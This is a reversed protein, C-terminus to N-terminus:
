FGVRIFGCENVMYILVAGSSNLVAKFKTKLYSKQNNPLNVAKAASSHVCACTHTETDSKKDVHM